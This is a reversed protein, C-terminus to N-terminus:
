ERETIPNGEMDYEVPKHRRSKLQSIRDRFRQRAERQYEEPDAKRLRVIKMMVEGRAEQYETSDSANAQAIARPNRWWERIIQSSIAGGLEKEIQYGTYGMHRLKVIETKISPYVKWLPPDFSRM